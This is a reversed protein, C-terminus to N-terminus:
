VIMLRRGLEAGYLKREFQANEPTKNNEQARRVLFPIVDKEEGYALIKQVTYGREVLGYTLYDAMGSLQGFCVTDTDHPIGLEKMSEVAREVSERNHTAVLLGGVGSEPTGWAIEELVSRVGRDYNADTAEKSPHLPYEQGTEESIEREYHM